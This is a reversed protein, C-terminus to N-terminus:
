SQQEKQVQQELWEAPSSPTVNRGRRELGLTQDISRAAGILSELKGIWAVRLKGRNDFLGRVEIADDLQEIRRHIRARYAHLSLRRTAVETEGGDDEVSAQRFIEIEGRMRELDAATYLGHTRALKAGPLLRGRRDRPANTGSIADLSPSLEPVSVSILDTNM